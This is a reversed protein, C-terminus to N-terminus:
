TSEFDRTRNGVYNWSGMQLASNILWSFVEEGTRGDSVAWVEVGSSAEEVRATLRRENM